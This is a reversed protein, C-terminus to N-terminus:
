SFGCSVDYKHDFVSHKGGLILFLVLMDARGRRNQMAGSTKSLAVLCTFSIFTMWSPFYSMSNDRNASSIIMYM